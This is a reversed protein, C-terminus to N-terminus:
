IGARQVAPFSTKLWSFRWPFGLKMSDCVEGYSSCYLHLLKSDTGTRCVCYSADVPPVAFAEGIQCKQQACRRTAERCFLRLSCRVEMQRPVAPSSDPPLHVRYRSSTFQRTDYACRIQAAPAACDRRCKVACVDSFEHLFVPRDAASFHWVTSLAGAREMHARCHDIELGTRFSLVAHPLM